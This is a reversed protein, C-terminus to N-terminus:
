VLRLAPHGFEVSEYSLAVLRDVLEHALTLLHHGDLEDEGLALYALQEDGDGRGLFKGVDDRRARAAEIEVVRQGRRADLRALTPRQQRGHAHALLDRERDIQEVGEVDAGDGQLFEELLEIMGRVADVEGRLKERAAHYGREFVVHERVERAAPFFLRRGLGRRAGERFRALTLVRSQGVLGHAVDGLTQRVDAVDRLRVSQHGVGFQFLQVGDRSAHRLADLAPVRPEDARAHRAQGGDYAAAAHCLTQAFLGGLQVFRKTVEADPSPSGNEAPIYDGSFPFM